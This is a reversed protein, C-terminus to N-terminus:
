SSKITPNLKNYIPIIKDLIPRYETMTELSKIYDSHLRLASAILEQFSFVTIDKSIKLSEDDMERTVRNYVLIGRVRKEQKSSRILERIKILYQKVQTLEKFGIAVDPKKFEM